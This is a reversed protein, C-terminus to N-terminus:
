NKYNNRTSSETNGNGHFKKVNNKLKEFIIDAVTDGKVAKVRNRLAEIATNVDEKSTEEDSKVTIMILDQIIVIVEDDTDVISVHDDINIASIPRVLNKQTKPAWYRSYDM